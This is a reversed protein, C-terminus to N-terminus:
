ADGGVAASSQSTPLSRELAWGERCWRALTELDGGGSLQAFRGGGPAERLGEAM